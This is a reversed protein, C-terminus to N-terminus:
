SPRMAARCTQIREEFMARERANSCLDAAREFAALAHAHRGLKLLLDGRVGFYPHYRALAPEAAIPELLDLGAQPGRLMSVAVARNLEVIPSGALEALDGYLAVISAWDTSAPTLATAHRAAIRAQLTYFGPPQGLRDAREIAALGRRIHVRDWRSRDQDMLLIPKGSADVRAAQRSAQIEMLAVLGHAEPESPMLEALIRGLRLAEECLAPRMWDDGVTAAYGESFLLYVVELVSQVREPLDDAAPMEFSDTLEALTRKARVIRQAITPEPALFARAIERTSLSCLLKLTLAARAETALAPHCTAFILRLLDDPVPDDLTSQPTAPDTQAPPASALEARISSLRRERRARDIAKHKATAMLWAAPSQPTGDRPWQELAALFAEQALEEAAGLDRTSRALAAILRPAEIKWIAEIAKSIPQPNDM